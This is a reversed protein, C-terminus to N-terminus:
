RKIEEVGTERALHVLRPDDTSLSTSLGDATFSLPFDPLLLGSRSRCLVNLILDFSRAVLHPTAEGQAETEVHWANSWGSFDRYVMVAGVLNWAKWAAELRRAVARKGGWAELAQPMHSRSEVPTPFTVLEGGVVGSRWSVHTRPRMSMNRLLPPRAGGRAADLAAERLGRASV